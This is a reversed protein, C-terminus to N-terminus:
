NTYVGNLKNSKMLILILTPKLETYKETMETLAIIKRAFFWCLQLNEQLFFIAFNSCSSHFLKEYLPQYLPSVELHPLYHSPFSSHSIIVFSLYETSETLPYWYFTLNEQITSYNSAYKSVM